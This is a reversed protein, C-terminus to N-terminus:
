PIIRLTGTLSPKAADHWDHFGPASVSIQASGGPPIEGTDFLGAENSVVRHAVSDTNVFTVPKGAEVAIDTPAFGTPGITVQGPVGAHAVATAQPPRPTAPAATSRPSASSTSVPPASPLATPSAPKNSNSAKCGAAPLAVVLAAAIALLARCSM